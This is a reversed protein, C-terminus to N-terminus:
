GPNGTLVAVPSGGAVVMRDHVGDYVATHGTLGQGGWPISGEVSLPGQWRDNGLEWAWVDVKVASNADHGGFVVMRRRRTDLVASALMRASPAGGSLPTIETWEPPDQALDLEWVDGLVAASGNQGGFM